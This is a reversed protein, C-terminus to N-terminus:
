RHAQSYLEVVILGKNTELVIIKERNRGGGPFILCGSLVSTILAVAMLCRIFKKM